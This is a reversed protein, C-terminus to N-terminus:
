FRDLGDIWRAVAAQIAPDLRGNGTPVTRRTLQSAPYGADVLKKLDRHILMTLPANMTEVSVVATRSGPTNKPLELTRPLPSDVVAIGRVFKRGKFGLVYALQGAKGEGAVVIRTPDADFRKIATSLVQALSELDDSSWGKADAPAPMVLVLRDRDCSQRWTAALAQNHKEDGDALWLLLGPRRGEGAPKYYRASQALDPIKLEALAPENSGAGSESGSPSETPLDDVSLIDSPLEGLEASFELEGEGRRVVIAIKDGPNHSNVEDLADKPFSIKDDNLKIIRDGPKLGAKSAASGPWVARVGVGTAAKPQADKEADTESDEAATAKTAAARSPIVGLFAHRYPPLEAALKVDSEIEKADAGDGRRIKIKLVDGAYRPATRFRLESQTAVRHGDVSLIVDDAKWGAASAPSRPWVATVKPSTSHPEGESMGVGLLGRKLDKEDVWRNLVALIQELPIAFAIGSDYYEAGALEDSETPGGAQPAMPVLVGLVRGQIDVLPGGYNAASANADTQIARGYMRNLGSVIGVSVNVKDTNFTRGVAVAWDGVHVAAFSAAEPTPLEDVDVKLLVLMRNEDHGILKAPVQKGDPLRVLISTPRQAFNIASSVIYGDGHIILGTTPGQSLVQDGVQELGSITRIQVVSDAVNATAADFAEQELRGIDDAASARSALNCAMAALAALLLIPKAYTRM